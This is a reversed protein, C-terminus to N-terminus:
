PSPSFALCAIVPGLRFSSTSVSKGPQRHYYATTHPSLAVLFSSHAPQQRSIRPGGEIIRSHLLSVPVLAVSDLSHRPHIHKQAIPHSSSFSARVLGFVLPRSPLYFLPVSPVPLFLLLLPPLLQYFRSMYILFPFPLLQTRHESSKDEDRSLTM